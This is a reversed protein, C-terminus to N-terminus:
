LIKKKNQNHLEKYKGPTIGKEKKFIRIFANSDQFGVISAIDAIRLDSESLLATAHGIRIDYLYEVVSVGRESKFRKSLYAPTFDFHLAINNLNLNLDSYNNDIYKCIEDAFNDRKESILDHLEESTKFWINKITSVAESLPFQFLSRNLAKIQTDTQTGYQKYIESQIQLSTRYFFYIINRAEDLSLGVSYIEKELQEFYQRVPISDGSLVLRILTESSGLGITCINDTDPPAYWHWFSATQFMHIYELSETAQTFAQSLEDSTDTIKGIGVTIDFKGFQRCFTRFQELKSLFCTRMHGTENDSNCIVAINTHLFCFYANFFDKQLLEHFVNQIIFYTLSASNEIDIANDKYVTQQYSEYNEIHIVAVITHKGELSFGFKKKVSDNVQHHLIEGALLRRLFENRLIEKQQSLETRNRSLQDLILSYENDSKGLPFSAGMYNMIHKVPRYNKRSYFFATILGTLFCVAITVFLIIILYNTKQFYIDQPIFSFLSLGSYSSQKNGVIYTQVDYPSLPTLIESDTLLPVIQDTLIPNTSIICTGDFFLALETEEQSLYQVSIKNLIDAPDLEFLLYSLINGSNDNVLGRIFYLRGNEECHYLLISAAPNLTYYQMCYDLASQPLSSNGMYKIMDMTYTTESSVIYQSQPLYIFIEKISQNAVEFLHFDQQISLVYSHLLPTFRDAYSLSTTTNMLQVRTAIRNWEALDKDILIQANELLLEQQQTISAKTISYTHIVYYSCIMIPILLVTLYSIVWKYYLRTNGLIVSFIKM